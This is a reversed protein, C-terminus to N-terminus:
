RSAPAPPAREIPPPPPSGPDPPAGADPPFPPAEPSIVPPPDSEPPLAPLPPVSAPGSRSASLESSPGGSVPPGHESFTVTVVTLSPPRYLGRLTPAMQISSLLPVNTLVSATHAARRM